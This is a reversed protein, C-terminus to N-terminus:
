WIAKWTEPTQATFPRTGAPQDPVYAELGNMRPDLMYGDVASTPDVGFGELEEAGMGNLPEDAALGRLEDEAFGKLEDDAELGRLEDDAELGRLEDEAFGRLDDDAELGRLEDEAFGRLEDDAFGDYGSMQYLSGDPAQYLAGLGNLEENANFGNAGSMQYLSGDPAQYLAGFGNLEENAAFGNYGTLGARQLWPTAAQVGAAVSSGVVPIFPAIRQVVPLYRRVFPRLKRRAFRRLARWFGVPNGLGDVGQVWQYLNGDPGQRVEGLAGVGMVQTLEDAGLGYM